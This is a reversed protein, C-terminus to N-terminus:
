AQDPGRGAGVKVLILTIDDHQEAKGMFKELDAVAKRLIEEASCAREASLLAQLRDVGYEDKRRNRAETVGDSYFAFLDDDAFSYESASFPVGELVGIPMGDDASLLRSSGDAMVHVVPLHGANSLALRQQMLDFIAYSLTVFLGGTSESSISDNLRALVEAPNEQGRAFFKFESVVKAMFLSAPPGKGSVDGAMLGIKGGELQVHAYLDGGVAKAPRMWAAWRARPHEPWAAPLFTRQIQSAIKLEGEILERKRMERLTRVLAAGAYIALGTVVPMFLDLWWGWLVFVGVVAGTLLVISGFAGALARAPALRVSLAAMWGGVLWLLLLNIWRGPRVVFDRTLLSNLVNAHLGVMPYVSQIPVPSTDHSGLSTLGVLCIKGRLRELDIRPVQGSQRELTAALIDLYSVHEFTTEWRGAYNVILCGDEDLPVRLKGDFDVAGDRIRLRDEPVGLLDAAMRLSLHWYERGQYRISPYIRRRKGDLDAAPNVHGIGKAALAYDELLPALIKESSFVGDAAREPRHFGHVFYVNGAERASEVVTEDGARKEVFLIDFGVAAAGHLGLADILYAHYERDFPWAGLAELTDDWVDVMVIKESVPRVPRIQCRWDYTQLEFREFARAWSLASAAALLAAVGTLRLARRQKSSLKFVM